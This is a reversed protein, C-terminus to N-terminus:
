KKSELAQLKPLIDSTQQGIMIRYYLLRRALEMAADRTQPEPQKKYRALTDEFNKELDALLSEPSFMRSSERSKTKSRPLHVQWGEKYADDAKASALHTNGVRKTTPGTPPPVMRELAANRRDKPLRAAELLKEMARELLKLKPKNEEAM